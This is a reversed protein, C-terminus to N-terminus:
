LFKEFYKGGSETCEHVRRITLQRVSESIGRRNCITQCTNFILQHLTGENEIPASYVPAKLTRLSLFRFSQPPIFTPATGRFSLTQLGINISIFIKEKNQHSSSMGSAQGLMASVGQINSFQM